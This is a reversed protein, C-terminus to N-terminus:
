ATTRSTLFRPPSSADLRVATLIGTAFAGTDVCIRGPLCIPEPGPTHGHIVLRDATTPADYFEHRIWLLDDESQQDVPLPGPRLGAHVFVTRPLSLSLALTRLFARHTEPIHDTLLRKLPGGRMMGLEQASLGYSALTEVGGFRLWPSSLDPRELFQLMMIEHNGALCVRTFGEPAPALLHEVVAASKPGRDVYDGLMVIWKPGPEAAADAVIRAELDRLQDYCGHVDGVAYVAAPWRTAQLHARPPTM